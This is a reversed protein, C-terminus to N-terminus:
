VYILSASQDRTSFDNFKLFNGTESVMEDDSLGETEILYNKIFEAFAGNKDLLEDYSGQESVNGDKMVVIMDCYPLFTVGHTM